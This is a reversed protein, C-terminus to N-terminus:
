ARTRRCPARVIAAVACMAVSTRSSPCMMAWSDRWTSASPGIRGRTRELGNLVTGPHEVRPTAGLRSGSRTPHWFEASARSSRHDPEPTGAAHDHAHSQSQETEDKNLQTTPQNQEAPRRRRLIHLQQHHPILDRHQAPSVTTRTQIPSITRHQDCQHPPQRDPQPLVSQHSWARHQPPMPAEDCLLPGVRVPSPPRLDILREAGGGVRVPAPGGLLSAVEQYVEAIRGTVESEHNTVPGALERRREIGNESVGPDVDHLDRWPTGRGVAVRFPKDAGDSALEGVSQEDVLM